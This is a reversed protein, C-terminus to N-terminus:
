KNITWFLAIFFCYWSDCWLSVMYSLNTIKAFNTLCFLWYPSCFVHMYTKKTHTKEKIVLFIHFSPRFYGKKWILVMKFNTKWFFSIIVNKLRFNDLCCVFSVIKCTAIVNEGFCRCVLVLLPGMQTCKLHTDQHFWLASFNCIENEKKKKKSNQLLNLMRTLYLTYKNFIIAVWLIYMQLGLRNLCQRPSIDTGIKSFCVYFSSSFYKAVVVKLTYQQRINM